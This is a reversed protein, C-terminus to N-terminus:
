AHRLDEGGYKSLFVLKYHLQNKLDFNQSNLGSVHMFIRKLAQFAHKNM